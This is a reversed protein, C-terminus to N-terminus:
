ENGWGKWLRNMTPRNVWREGDWWRLDKKLEEIYNPGMPPLKGKRVLEQRQLLFLDHPELQLLHLNLHFRFIPGVFLPHEETQPLCTHVSLENASFSLDGVQCFSSPYLNVLDTNPLLLYYKETGRPVGKLAYEKHDPLPSSGQVVRPDLIVIAPRSYATNAGGAIIESLGDKDLDTIILYYLAGTNIYEGLLDGKPAFILIFSPFSSKHKILAIIEKGGQRNLDRIELRMLEYDPPIVKGGCNLPRGLRHKWILRGQNSFCLLYLRPPEERTKFAILTNAGRAPSLKVFRVLPLREKGPAQPEKEYIPLPSTYEWLKKGRKDLIIFRSGVIRVSVPHLVKFRPKFYYYFLFVLLIAMLIHVLAWIKRSRIFDPLYLLAPAEHKIRLWCDLESKYAFVTGGKAYSPHHVPLHRKKAWRQVTRVSRNLYAAIERWGELIEDGKPEM